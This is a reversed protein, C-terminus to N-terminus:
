FQPEDSLDTPQNVIFQEYVHNIMGLIRVFSRDYITQDEPQGLLLWYGELKLNYTILVRENMKQEIDRAFEYLLDIYHKSEKDNFDPKPHDIIDDRIKKLPNYKGGKNLNDHKHLLWKSFTLASQLLLEKAFEWFPSGSYILLNPISANFPDCVGGYRMGFLLERRGCMLALLSLTNCLKLVRPYQLIVNDKADNPMGSYDRIYDDVLIDSAKILHLDIDINNNNQTQFNDYQYYTKNEYTDYPM